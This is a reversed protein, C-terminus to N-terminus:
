EGLVLDGIVGVGLTSNTAEGPDEHRLSIWLGPGLVLYSMSLDPIFVLSGLEVTTYKSINVEDDYFCHSQGNNYVIFEYM